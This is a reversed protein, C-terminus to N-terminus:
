RENPQKRTPMDGGLRLYCHQCEQAFLSRGLGTRCRPCRWVAILLIGSLGWAAGIWLPNLGLAPVLVVVGVWVAFAAWAAAQRRHFSRRLEALEVPTPNIHSIM